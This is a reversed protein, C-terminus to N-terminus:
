ATVSKIFEAQRANIFVHRDALATLMRELVSRIERFRTFLMTVVLMQQQAKQLGTTHDANVLCVTKIECRFSTFNPMRTEVLM